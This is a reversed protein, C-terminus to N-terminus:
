AHELSGRHREQTFTAAGRKTCERNRTSVLACGITWVYKPYWIMLLYENLRLWKKCVTFRHLAYMWKVCVPVNWTKIEQCHKTEVTLSAEHRSSAGSNKRLDLTLLATEWSTKSCKISRSVLTVSLKYNESVLNPIKMLQWTDLSFSIVGHFIDTQSIFTNM